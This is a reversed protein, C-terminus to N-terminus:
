VMDETGRSKKKKVWIRYLDGGDVELYPGNLIGSTQTATFIRYLIERM